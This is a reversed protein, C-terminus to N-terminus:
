PTLCGGRDAHGGRICQKMEEHAHHSHVRRNVPGRGSCRPRVWTWTHWDTLSLKRMRPSVPKDLRQQAYEGAEMAQALEAEDAATLLDHHSIKELYQSVLNASGPEREGRESGGGNGTPRLPRSSTPDHSGAEDKRRHSTTRHLHVRRSMGRGGRRRARVARGPRSLEPRHGGPHQGMSPTEGIGVLIGTTFPVKQRGSAEITAVRLAPDKDPCDHHPM